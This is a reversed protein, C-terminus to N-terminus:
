KLHCTKCFASNTDEKWTFKRGENKTNHVDHCTGCEMKGGWLLDGISTTGVMINLPDAIEDDNGGTAAAVSAYDFGIPHHNSLDGGFGISARATSLMFVDASSHREEAAAPLFGYQNVAVSGDHCSLCLLSVNGPTTALLTSDAFHQPDSPDETGNDYLTWDPTQTIAHNWLPVYGVPNVGSLADAPKLTHHPAHCYICIRNFGAGGTQENTDGYTSAAGSSSLDHFSGTIGSGPTTGAMAVLALGFVILAVTSIIISFKKKM